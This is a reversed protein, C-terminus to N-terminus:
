SFPVTSDSWLPAAGSPVRLTSSFIFWHVHRTARPENCVLVLHRGQHGRVRRAELARRPTCPAPCYMGKTSIGTDPQVQKFSKYIYISYWEPRRKKKKKGKEGAAKPKKEKSFL